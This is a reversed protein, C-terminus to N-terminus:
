RAQYSFAGPAPTSFSPSISRSQPAQGALSKRGKNLFYAATNEGVKSAGYGVANTLFQDANRYNMNPRNKMKNWQGGSIQGWTLTSLTSTAGKLLGNRMAYNNAEDESMGRSLGENYSDVYARGADAAIMGASALSGSVPLWSLITHSVSGVADAIELTIVAVNARRASAFSRAQDRELNDQHMVRTARSSTRWENFPKGTGSEGGLGEWADRIKQEMYPDDTIGPPPDLELTGGSTRNSFDDPLDFPVDWVQVTVTVADDGGGGGGSDGGGYAALDRAAFNLTVTIVAGIIVLQRLLKKLYGEM